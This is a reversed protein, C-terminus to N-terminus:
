RGWNPCTAHHPMWREGGDLTAQAHVVAGAPTIEVNGAPTPLADLPMAKGNAATRVWRIEAGCSRCANM